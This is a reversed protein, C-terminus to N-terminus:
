RASAQIVSTWLEWEDDRLFELPETCHGLPHYRERLRDAPRVIIADSMGLGETVIDTDEDGYDRQAGYDKLRLVPSTTKLFADTRPTGPEAQRVRMVAIWAITFVLSSALWIGLVKLIV